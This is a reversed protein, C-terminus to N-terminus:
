TASWSLTPRSAAQFERSVQQAGGRLDPLFKREQDDITGDAFLM